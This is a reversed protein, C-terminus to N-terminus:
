GRTSEVRVLRDGVPHGTGHRFPPTNETGELTIGSVTFWPPTSYLCYGWPVNQQTCVIQIGYIQSNINPSGELGTNFWNQGQALTSGGWAGTTVNQWFDGVVVGTTWGGANVDGNATLAQNITIGPPATTMWYANQGLPIPNFTQISM